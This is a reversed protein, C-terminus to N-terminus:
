IASHAFREDTRPIESKALLPFHKNSLERDQPTKVLCSSLGHFFISKDDLGTLQTTEIADIVSAPGVKMGIARLLRIFLIINQDLKPTVEPISSPVSSTM